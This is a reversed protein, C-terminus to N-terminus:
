GGPGQGGGGEVASGRSGVRTTEWSANDGRSVRQNPFYGTTLFPCQRGLLIGHCGGGSDLSPAVDGVHADRGLVLLFPEGGLALGDRCPCGPFADDDRFPELLDDAPLEVEVLSGFEDAGHAQEFVAVLQYDDAAVAKGAVDHGGRDALLHCGLDAGGDDGCVTAVESVAGLAEQQSGDDVGDPLVLAHEDDRSGLRDQGGLLLAALDDPAHRVALLENLARLEQHRASGLLGDDVADEFQAAGAGSM